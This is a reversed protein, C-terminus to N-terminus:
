STSILDSLISFVANMAGKHIMSIVCLLFCRYITLVFVKKMFKFNKCNIRHLTM